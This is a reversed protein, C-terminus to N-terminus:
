QGLEKMLCRAQLNSIERVIEMDVDEVRILISYRGSEKEPAELLEKEKDSNHNISTLVLSEVFWHYDLPREEIIEKKKLDVLCVMMIKKLDISRQKKFILNKANDIEIIQTRESFDKLLLIILLTIMIQGVFWWGLLSVVGFIVFMGVLIKPNLIKDGRPNVIFRVLNNTVDYEKKIGKNLQEIRSGKNETDEVSLLEGHEGDEAIVDQKHPVDKKEKEDLEDDLNINFSAQSIKEELEKELVPSQEGKDDHKVDLYLGPEDIKVMDKEEKNEVDKM